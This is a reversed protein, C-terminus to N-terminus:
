RNVLLDLKAKIEKVDEQTDKVHGELTDFRADVRDFREDMKSELAEVQAKTAVQTQLYNEIIGVREELDINVQTM